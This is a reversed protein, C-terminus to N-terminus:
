TIGPIINAAWEKAAEEASMDANQALKGSLVRLAIGCAGIVADNALVPDIAMDDVTLVGPKPQKRQTSCYKGLVACARHESFHLQM